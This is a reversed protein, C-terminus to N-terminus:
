HVPDGDLVNRVARALRAPPCPKSVLPVDEPLDIQKAMGRSPYGSMFLVAMDPRSKRITCALEVGGLSPMVVDTLVLDIQNEYVTEQELAEFGDNASLVTYGLSELTRRILDCLAKDDEALLITEGKSGLTREDLEPLEEAMEDTTPLYISFTTGDGAASKVEIAGKSQEVFGYVMALGLGTDKGAEKTTFFPDFISEITKEDMGEGEDEVDIHLYTGPSMLSKKRLFEDDAEILQLKISVWGGDPMADRANIALNVLAQTFQAVDTEIFTKDRLPEIELKIAEGLLPRLLTELGPLTSGVEVANTEAPQDRSFVLLQHTLGAAKESALLVSDLAEKANETLGPSDQAIRTYGDVTMLINNFDHAVGGALQGIAEMKQAQHFQETMENHAAAAHHREIAVSLVNAVAMLFQIDEGVIPRFNTAYAALVGFTEDHGRIAVSTGSVLHHVAFLDLDTFRKELEADEIVVTEGTSFCHGAPTEVGASVAANGMLGGKLGGGAWLLLKECEPDPEFIAAYEVELTQSVLAAVQEFLDNLDDSELAARGLQVVISQQFARAALKAETLSREAIESELTRNLETLSATREVVRRELDENYKQISDEDRKRETIDDWLLISGLHNGFRGRVPDAAVTFVRGDQGFERSEHGNM